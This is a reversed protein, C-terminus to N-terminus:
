APVTINVLWGNPGATVEVTAQLPPQPAVPTESYWAVFPLSMESTGATVTPMSLGYYGADTRDPLYLGLSLSAPPSNDGIFKTDLAAVETTYPSGPAAQGMTKEAWEASQGMGPDFVSVRQPTPVLVAVANSFSATGCGALLVTAILGIVVRKLVACGYRSPM